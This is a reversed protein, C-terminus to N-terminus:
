PAADLPVGEEGAEVEFRSAQLEFM